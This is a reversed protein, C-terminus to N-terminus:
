ERNNRRERADIMGEMRRLWGGQNGYMQCADYIDQVKYNGLKQKYEVLVDRIITLQKHTDGWDDKGIRAVIIQVLEYGTPKHKPDTDVLALRAQRKPPHYKPDKAENTLLLVAETAINKVILPEHSGKSGYIISGSVDIPRRNQKSGCQQSVMFDGPPYLKKLANRVTDEKRPYGFFYAHCHTREAETSPHEYSIGQTSVEM